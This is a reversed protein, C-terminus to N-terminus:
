QLMEKRIPAPHQIGEPVRVAVKAAAPAWRQVADIWAPAMTSNCEILVFRGVIQTALVAAEYHAPEAGAGHVVVQRAWRLLREATPWGAPGTAHDDDDGILVLAPRRVTALFRKLKGACGERQIELHAIQGNYLARLLRVRHEAGVQQMLAIARPLDSWDNVPFVVSM